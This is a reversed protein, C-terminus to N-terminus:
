CPVRWLRVCQLRSGISHNSAFFKWWIARLVLAQVWDHALNKLPTKFTGVVSGANMSHCLVLTGRGFMKPAFLCFYGSFHNELLWWFIELIWNQRRIVWSFYRRFPSSIISKRRQAAERMMDWSSRFFRFSPWTQKKKMVDIEKEFWSPKKVSIRRWLTGQKRQLVIPQNRLNAQVHMRFLESLTRTRGRSNSNRTLLDVSTKYDWM